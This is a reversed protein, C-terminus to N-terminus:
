AGTGTGSAATSGGIVAGAPIGITTIKALVGQIAGIATTNAALGAQLPATAELIDIKAQKRDIEARLDYEKKLAEIDAANKVAQQNIKETLAALLVSSKVVQEDTYREAELKAIKAEADIARNGVGGFFGPALTNLGGLATGILGLALTGAGADFRGKNGDNVEM